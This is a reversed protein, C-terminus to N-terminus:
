LQCLVFVALRAPISGPPGPPVNRGPVSTPLKILREVLGSIDVNVKMAWLASPHKASVMWFITVTFGGGVTEMAALEPLTHEPALLRVNVPVGAPPVQDLLLVLIAVTLLLVPTTVPPAELPLTM